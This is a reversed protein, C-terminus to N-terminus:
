EGDKAFATAFYIIDSVTRMKGSSVGNIKDGNFVISSSSGGDLNYANQVHDFSSVLDVFQAITLGVSDKNEPGECYVILYELTGTQAICIRQALAEPGRDYLQEETFETVPEGDIILGPGFNFSNVAVAEYAECEAQSPSQLIHFNGDKDIILVDTKGNARRRVVSGQRVTSGITNFGYYDGNIALVANVRRAMTTCFEASPNNYSGAVYTRLQSPDAITVAVAMWNTDFMRGQTIEVHLSEDLYEVDSLYGSEPPKPGGTKDIPLSIVAGIASGSPVLVALLLIMLIIFLIRLLKM